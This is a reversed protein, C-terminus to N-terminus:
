ASAALQGAERAQIKKRWELYGAIALGLFILFQFSSLTLGKYYYLPISILDGIIWYVWNELKKRAMELMGVFFIATTFADTYPVPSDTFNVLVYALIGFFVAVMGLSIWRENGELRTIPLEPADEQPRTWRYWGYVSMATYYINIGMDGWLSITITVYIYILTSVIGTPFVLISGRMAFMVSLIGFVVATAELVIDWTSYGEYQAFLFEWVAEM